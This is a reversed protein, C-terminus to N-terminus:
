ATTKSMGRLKGLVGNWPPIVVSVAGFARAQCALRILPQPESTDIYGFVKVRRGEDNPAVPSLKERGGLVGVWCTGCSAARCEVPIPGEGPICRADTSRYDRKDTQAGTALEQDRLVSFKAEPDTEDFTVTWIKKMGRLFGFLGQSNDRRRKALVQTTTRLKARQSLHVTGKSAAFAEAGAQRLTMLAVAAIGLLRNRDARVVRGASDAVAEITPTLDASVNDLGIVAQKAQPWFRHAYLFRHSTDVQDALKWRGMLRLSRAVAAEDEANELAVCLDLPFFAFWIRTADRDVEHIAPAIADLAAQWARADFKRLHTEIVKLRDVSM